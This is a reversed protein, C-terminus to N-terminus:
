RVVTRFTLSVRRARAVRQGAIMDNKRAPIMHTWRYRAEDALVLLSRPPLRLELKDADRQLVMTTAGGLSLSAIVPGFCPKCDVHKSIGQGPLYENVIVQDPATAFGGGVKAVRAALEAAWGPLPGLYMSPDVARRKYDYVWGYHQVRRALERRWPLADIVGLQEHERAATVFEFVLALGPIQNADVM